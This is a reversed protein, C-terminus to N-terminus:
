GVELVGREYDITVSFRRFFDLGILAYIGWSKEFRSINIEVQTMTQGCVSLHPLVLSGYKQTQLGRQVDVDTDFRTTTQLVDYDVSLQKGQSVFRLSAGIAQLHHCTGSRAEMGWSLVM